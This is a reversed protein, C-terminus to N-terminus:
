ATRKSGMWKIKELLTDITICQHKIPENIFMNIFSNSDFDRIERLQAIEEPSMEQLKKAIRQNLIDREFDLIDNLLARHTSKKISQLTQIYAQKTDSNMDQVFDRLEIMQGVEKFGDDDFDYQEYSHMILNYAAEDTLTEPTIDSKLNSYAQLIDSEYNNLKNIFEKANKLNINEVYAKKYNKWVRARWLDIRWGKKWAFVFRENSKCLRTM